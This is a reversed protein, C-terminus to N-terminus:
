PKVTAPLLVALDSGRKLNSFAPFDICVLAGTMVATKQVRYLTFKNVHKIYLWCLTDTITSSFPCPVRYFMM